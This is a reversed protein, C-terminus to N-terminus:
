QQCVCAVYLTNESSYSHFSGMSCHKHKSVLTYIAFVHTHVVACSPNKFYLNVLCSIKNCASLKFPPVKRVIWRFCLYVEGAHWNAVAAQADTVTDHSFEFMAGYCCCGLLFYNCFDRATTDPLMPDGHVLGCYQKIQLLGPSQAVCLSKGM